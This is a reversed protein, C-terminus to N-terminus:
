GAAPQTTHFQHRYRSPTTHLAAVFQHRLNTATGLGTRAAITAVPHNTTELLRQAALIRERQIWQQPTQRLTTTFPRHLTRESVGAHRALRAM